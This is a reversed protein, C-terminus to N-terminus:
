FLGSEKLDPNSNTILEDTESLAFFVFTGKNEPVIVRSKKTCNKYLIQVTQVTVITKRPKLADEFNDFYNRFSRFILSIPKNQTKGTIGSTRSM